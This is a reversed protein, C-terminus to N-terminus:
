RPRNEEPIEMGQDQYYKAAGTHLPINGMGKFADNPKLDSMAKAGPTNKMAPLNQFFVETINYVINEDLDEDVILINPTAVTSVEQDPKDKGYIGKPIIDPILYFQKLQLLRDIQEQHLSLLEFNGRDENLLQNVADIPIGGSFAAGDYRGNKALAEKISFFSEGTDLNLRNSRSFGLSIFFADIADATGSNEPGICFRITSSSLLLDDLYGSGTRTKQSNSIFHYMDPWLYTIARLGNYPINNFEGKGARAQLAKQTEIIAISVEGSKLLNANEISGSTKKPEFRIDFGKDRFATEWVAALQKGVKWYTGGETATALTILDKRHKTYLVKFVVTQNIPDIEDVFPPNTYGKKVTSIREEPFGFEVMIEKVSEARKKSVRFNAQESGTRNAHGEIAIFLAGCANLDEVVRKLIRRKEVSIDKSNLPIHLRGNPDYYRGGEKCNLLNDISLLGDMEQSFGHNGFFCVLVGIIFAVVCKEITM